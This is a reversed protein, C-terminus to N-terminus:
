LAASMQWQSLVERQMGAQEFIFGMEEPYIPSVHWVKSPFRAFLARMLDSGADAGRSDAKVLVSAISVHEAQPNSIMCYAGKLCFARSPPTHHAITVGSLQWPLDLLGECAVHRALEHIDIEELEERSEVQPYELKYGVLRRVIEFGVKKYLKVGATNQEIVELLMKKDGRLRAADILQQMAWTGVGDNRAHSVIGMAALRSTWGRRAMLGVGVPEGDKHLVRSEVLDISDRRMMTLLVPETIQIPIFYGEFGRTLLDAIESLRFEAASKLSLFAM